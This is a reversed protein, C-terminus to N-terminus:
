GYIALELLKNERSGSASGGGEVTSQKNVEVAGWEGVM